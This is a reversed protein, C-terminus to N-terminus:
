DLLIEEGTRAIVISISTAQEKLISIVQDAHESDWFDPAPRGWEELHTLIIRRPQLAMCFNCFSELLPSAPQLAAGRGLWLHAFLVDVPGFGPLCAPDYTRTDGPFLWRKGGQEVLYGISPVGRRGAPHDQAIEWHQGEFPTIHLNHLDISQLPKAVLIQKMPLHTERQVLPLIAEPIVWVIPLQQLLCMLVLDLHDKHHHTLLVFELDMLDHAVDMEPASPLRHVLRLPDIAWRVGQTRFLYNASYMLWARDESRPSKWESILKNWLMPYRAIM